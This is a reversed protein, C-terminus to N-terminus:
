QGPAEACRAGHEGLGPDPLRGRARRPAGLCRRRALGLLGGLLLLAPAPEPVTTSGIEVNEVALSVPGDENQIQMTFTVISIYSIGPVVSGSPSASFGLIPMSTSPGWFATGAHFGGNTTCDTGTPSSPIEIVPNGGLDFGPVGIYTCLDAQIFDNPGLMAKSSTIDFMSTLTVTANATVHFPIILGIALSAPDNNGPNADQDFHTLEITGNYVELELTNGVLEWRGGAEAFSNGLGATVLDNSYVAPPAPKQPLLGVPNALDGFGNRHVGAATISTGSGPIGLTGGAFEIEVGGITGIVPTASAPLASLLLWAVPAATRVLRSRVSSLVHGM